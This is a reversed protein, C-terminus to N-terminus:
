LVLVIFLTVCICTLILVASQCVKLLLEGEKGPVTDIPGAAEVPKRLQLFEVWHECDKSLGNREMGEAAQSRAQEWSCLAAKGDSPLETKLRISGVSTLSTSFSSNGTQSGYWVPAM